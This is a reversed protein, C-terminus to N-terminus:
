QGEDLAISIGSNATLVSLTLNCLNLPIKKRTSDVCTFLLSQPTDIKSRAFLLNAVCHSNAQARNV